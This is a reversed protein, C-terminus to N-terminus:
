IALFNLISAFSVWLFYPVLLWSAKKNIKWLGIILILISIWVFLIDIFGLLPNRMTFFFLSWSINFIFNVGFLIGVKLREKKNKAKTWAFFLSIAILLFLINWVIPFVFNPPTLSSRVSQYWESKTNSGTFISGFIAVIFVILLCIIFTPILNYKKKRGEKIKNLRKKM